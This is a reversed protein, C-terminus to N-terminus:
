GAAPWRRQRPTGPPDAGPPEVGERGRGVVGAELGSSSRLRVEGVRQADALVLLGQERRARAKTGPGPRM